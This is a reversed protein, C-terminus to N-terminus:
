KESRWTPAFGSRDIRMLGGFRNQSNGTWDATADLVFEAVKGSRVQRM